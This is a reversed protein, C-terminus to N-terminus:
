SADQEMVLSLLAKQAHLRNEAEDYIVSQEGDMVSDTVEEGRHAPLCHLFIADPKAHAMLEDNVQFGEFAALRLDHEEEDGMSTWTDTVVVDADTVAEVPDTGVWVTSGSKAAMERAEAIVDPDAAYGDPTAVAIDMGCLTCGELYSNAMNNGDGVYALKLGFLLGKHEQITLLDALVQCPHFDDTLANIVPIDVWEAIEEVKQQEFTRIVIADVFRELVLSTDQVTEGRSFASHSDSMVVPHAGLRACGVEFSTRTRLSPKELIVAVAKGTCPTEHIGAAWDAKQKAATRLVLALETPTLDFLRLVSRGALTNRLEEM